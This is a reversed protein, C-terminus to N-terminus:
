DAVCFYKRPLKRYASYRYYPRYAYGRYIAPPEQGYYAGHYLNYPVGEACRYADWTPGVFPAVGIEPPVAPYPGGAQAPGAVILAAILFFWASRM